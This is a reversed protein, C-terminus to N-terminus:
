NGPDRLADRIVAIGERAPAFDPDARLAAQYHPLAERLRGSQLLANGLDTHATPDDPKLRLAETEERIAGTLDGGRALLGGLNVHAEVFSADDRLAARYEDVAGELDGSAELSVALNYHATARPHPEDASPFRGLVVALALAGFSVGLAAARPPRERVLSALRAAGVVAFLAAIPIMPVRYRGFVVFAATSAASVLLLVVLLLATARGGRRRQEDLTWLIAVLALPALVGFSLWWTARLVLSADRYVAPEDSDPIERASWVLMWKRGLLRLWDGPHDSIWAWARGSWYRSVEAPRLARGSAQEALEIADQREQAFSGHGFRLPAYTGDAEANNGLYFNVGAQSTTVFPTGGLAANRAAVPGLLLLVGGLFPALARRGHRWGVWVALVPLWALANERTLALCELAAGALGLWRARKAEAEEVRALAWLLATTFFLDLAMKHVLGTFFIAPGYLALVIGAALGVERSFLRRGAGALLVCSAGGLAAQALRVVLVSPGAVAYLAALFYPYLPAQYFVEHGVVDGGAIARAWADYATADGVLVRAVDAGGIEVVYAVRVLFAIAFLAFGLRADSARAFGGIGAARLRALPGGSV